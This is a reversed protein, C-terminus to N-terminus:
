GGDGGDDGDCGGDGGGYPIRRQRMPVPEIVSTLCRRARNM